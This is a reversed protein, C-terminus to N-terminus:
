ACTINVWGKELAYQIASSIDPLNLKRLVNSQNKQIRRVNSHLIQAIEVDSYGVSILKLIEQEKYTLFKVHAKSKQSLHIMACFLTVSIIFFLAKEM